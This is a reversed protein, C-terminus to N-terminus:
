LNSIKMIMLYIKSLFYSTFFPKSYMIDVAYYLVTEKKWFKVIYGSNTQDVYVLYFQLLKYSM